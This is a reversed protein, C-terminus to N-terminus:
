NILIKVPAFGEAQILYIGKPIASTPISLKSEASVSKSMVTQGLWNIVNFNVSTKYPNSIFIYDNAPNPYISLQNLPHTTKIGGDESVLNKAINTLIPEQWDFYIYAQNKITTGIPLNSNTSLNMTFNIFGHSEQENTTSDPLNIKNFKWSFKYAWKGNPQRWMIPAQNIFADLHSVEIKAFPLSIYLHPDISDTVVINEAVDNGTNQFRIKYDIVKQTPAIYYAQQTRKDNPDIAAVIKQKLIRSNNTLDEDELDGISIKTDFLIESELPISLPVTTKANFCFMEGAILPKINWEAISNQWSVPQESFTWNTLRSDVKLTLKASEIKQTGKNEVCIKYTEEYGQRARWGTFDNIKVGADLHVGNTKVGFDVGAITLQSTVIAPKLSGCTAINYKPLILEVLHNRKRSSDIPFYYRGNYDTILYISENNPLTLKVVVGELSKEGFEQTCNENIDNFVKGAIIANGFDLIGTHNLILNQYTVFAGSILVQNQGNLLIDNGLYDFNPVTWVNGNWFALSALNGTNINTFQGAAWLNKGIQRMDSISNIKWDSLGDGIEFWNSNTLQIAIKNTGDFDVGAIVLKEGYNGFAINGNTFPPVDSLQIIEWNGNVFKAFYRSEQNQTFFGISWIIGNCYEFDKFYDNAGINATVGAYVSCDTKNVKLITITQNDATIKGCLLLGDATNLFTLNNSVRINDTNIVEWKKGSNKILLLKENYKNTLALYIANNYFYIAKAEISQPLTSITNLLSVPIETYQIWFNGDWKNVVFKENDNSVVWMKDGESCTVNLSNKQGIGMPLIVQAKTINVLVLLLIFLKVIAKM